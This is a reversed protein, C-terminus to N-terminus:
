ETYEQLMAPRFPSSGPSFSGRKTIFPLLFGTRRNRRRALECRCTPKGTDKTPVSKDAHLPPMGIHVNELRRVPALHSKRSRGTNGKSRCPLGSALQCKGFTHNYQRLHMLMARRPPASEGDRIKAQHHCLGRFLRAQTDAFTVKAGKTNQSSDQTIHNLSRRASKPRYEQM